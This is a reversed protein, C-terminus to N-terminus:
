HLLPPLLFLMSMSWALHTIIPALVGGTVRRQLGAVLGLLAAAFVLMGNGTAITTLAYVVTSGVIAVRSPLAAFLAGRFFLEEGIGTLVTLVAVAPLSAFRAHDLVDLVAARLPPLQAVLLAGIVFISVLAAGVVLPQVVPLALTGRRTHARGLRIPGSVLAGVTWTAALALTFLYFRRDGPDLNISIGLLVAGLVLTVGVIVRRRRLEAASPPTPAPVPDVFSARLFRTIESGPRNDRPEPTAGIGSM